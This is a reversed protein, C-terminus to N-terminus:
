GKYPHASEAKKGFELGKVFKGLYYAAVLFLVAYRSVLDLYNLESLTVAFAVCIVVFILDFLLAPKM